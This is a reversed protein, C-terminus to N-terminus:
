RDSAEVQEAVNKKKTDHFPEVSKFLGIIPVFSVIYIQTTVEGMSSEQETSYFVDLRCFAKLVSEYGVFLETEFIDKITSNNKVVLKKIERHAVLKMWQGRAFLLLGGIVVLWTIVYTVPHNM